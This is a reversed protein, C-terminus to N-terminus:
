GDPYKRQVLKIAEEYTSIEEDLQADYVASLIEGFRPGPKLGMKLLDRGRLLPDPKLAEERIKERSQRLFDLNECDGHSAMCDIRHLELETEITSRSLFKKLTGLKMNRVHMFNMHNAICACVDELFANSTRFRKLLGTAIRVGLQDHNNFRIRDKAQVMTAPKGIDHLLTSWVLVSSPKPPMLKLALRTHDFVDGEPHFQPPQEVGKLAAVEPLIIKLLGSRDLLDLANEPHGSCLMKDVESFIREASITVIKEANDTIADWTNQEITFGFRAAFRIARLMRLFDERFRTDPDGIARIIGRSIDERGGVYDIISGQMPDYFMGNITFDRRLADNRSDTYVVKGPHRGDYTVGDSRFTAVEFSLDDVMVMIVGFQAGVAVTRPFLRLVTEPRANTAIDIDSSDPREMIMDRVIGGAFLAVFGEKELKEVISIAGRYGPASKDIRM